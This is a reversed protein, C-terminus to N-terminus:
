RGAPQPLPTKVEPQGQQGPPIPFPNKTEPQGQLGPPQPFLNKTEPQGQQGAPQPFPSETAPQGQQATPQAIPNKVPPPEKVGRKQGPRNQPLPQQEEQGSQRGATSGAAPSGRGTCTGRFVAENSQIKVNLPYVVQMVAAGSFTPLKMEDGLQWTHTVEQRGEKEFVLTKPETHVRDSRIFKYQVKTARNAYIQGKFTFVAPCSGTYALPSVSLDAIVRLGAAERRPWKLTPQQVTPPQEKGPVQLTDSQQQSYGDALFGILIMCALVLIAGPKRSQVV